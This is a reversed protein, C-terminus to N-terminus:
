WREHSEARANIGALVASYTRRLAARPLNKTEMGEVEAEEPLRSELCLWSKLLRDWLLRSSSYSCTSPRCSPSGRGGGLAGGAAGGGTTAAAPGNLIGGNGETAGGGNGGGFIAAIGGVIGGGEKGGGEKLAAANWLLEASL